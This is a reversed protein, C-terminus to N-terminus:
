VGSNTDIIEGQISDPLAKRQPPNILTIKVEGIRPGTEKTEPYEGSLKNMEKLAELKTKLDATRAIEVLIKAREVNPFLEILIDVLKRGETNIIEQALTRQRILEQNFQKSKNLNYLIVAASANPNLGGCNYCSLVAEIPVVDKVIKEIVCKQKETLPKISM